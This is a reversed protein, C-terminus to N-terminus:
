GEKALSKFSHRLSYEDSQLIVQFAKRTVANVVIPCKLNVTIKEVDDSLVCIAYFSLDEDNNTELKKYDDKDLIPNYNFNLAFPNLLLFTLNDDDVSELSIINGSDDDVALPIYKKYEEFGLIGEDFIILEDENYGKNKINDSM